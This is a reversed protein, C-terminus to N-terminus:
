FGNDVESTALVSVMVGGFHNKQKSTRGTAM